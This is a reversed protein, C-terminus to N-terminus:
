RCHEVILSVLVVTFPKKEEEKLILKKEENDRGYDSLKDGCNKNQRNQKNGNDLDSRQKM